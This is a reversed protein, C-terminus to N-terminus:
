TYNASNMVAISIDDVQPKARVLGAGGDDKKGGQMIVPPTEKTAQAAEKGAQQSATVQATTAAMSAQRQVSRSETEIQNASMPPATSPTEISTMTAKAKPTRMSQTMMGQDVAAIPEIPELSDAKIVVNSTELNAEKMTAPKDETGFMSNNTFFDMGKFMTEPDVMGFTLGSAISALSSQAKDGFSLDKQEKGSIASADDWGSFADMGVSALMGLPGLVKLAKGGLKGAMKGLKGLKSSGKAATTMPASGGTSLPLSSLPDATDALAAAGDMGATIFGLKGGVKSALRGLKGKGRRGTRSMRKDRTRRTDQNADRYGERYSMASDDDSHGLMKAASGLMGGKGAMKGLMAGSGVSLLSGAGSTIMDSLGLMADLNGLGMSQLVMSIAGSALGQGTSILEPNEMFKESLSNKSLAESLEENNLISADFKENLENLTYLTKTETTDANLKDLIKTVKRMTHANMKGDDSYSQQLEQVQGIYEPFNELTKNLEQIAYDKSETTKATKLLMQTERVKENVKQKSKETDELSQLAGTIRQFQDETLKASSKLINGIDMLEQTQKLSDQQQLSSYMDDAVQRRHSSSLRSDGVVNSSQRLMDLSSVSRIDSVQTIDATVAKVTDLLESAQDKDLKERNLVKDLLERNEGDRFNSIREVADMQEQIKQQLAVDNKKVAMDMRKQLDKLTKDTDLLASSVDISSLVTTLQDHLKSGQLVTPLSSAIKDGLTNLNRIPEFDKAAKARAGLRSAFSGVAKGKTDEMISPDDQPRFAM